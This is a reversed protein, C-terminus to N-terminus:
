LERMSRRSEDLTFDYGIWTISEFLDRFNDIERVVPEFAKFVNNDLRMATDSVILLKPRKSINESM